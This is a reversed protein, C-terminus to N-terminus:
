ALLDVWTPLNHQTNLAACTHEMMNSICHPPPFLKSKPKGLM